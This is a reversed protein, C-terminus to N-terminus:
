AAREKQLSKWDHTWYYGRRGCAPFLGWLAPFSRNTSCYYMASDTVTGTVAIEGAKLLKPHACKAFEGTGRVFFCDKCFRDAM